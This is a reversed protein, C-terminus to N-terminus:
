GDANWGRRAQRARSRVLRIQVCPDFGWEAFVNRAAGAHGIRADKIAFDLYYARTAHM